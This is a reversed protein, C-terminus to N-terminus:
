KVALYDLAFQAYLATGIKLANEDVDFHAHHLPWGIGKEANGVGSLCLGRPKKAYFPFDESVTLSAYQSPKRVM